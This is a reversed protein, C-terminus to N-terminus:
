EGGDGEKWDPWHNAELIPLIVGLLKEGAALAEEKVPLIPGQNFALEVKSFYSFKGFINKNLTIRTEERSGMYKGNVRFFYMVPFKSQNQWLNSKSSGFVLYKGQINRRFSGKSDMPHGVANIEFKISDSSLREYGGGMYCEEPAHVVKDPLDYYTIFLLLNRVASDSSAETDELVWQIYDETGLEKILQKNDIGVKSTVRYPSLNEEDLFELPKKLPLPEKDPIVVGLIPKIIEGAALVAVCILFAPQFYVRMNHGM